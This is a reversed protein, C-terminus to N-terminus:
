SNSSPIPLISVSGNRSIAEVELVHEVRQVHEGGEPDVEYRAGLREVRAEGRAAKEQMHAARHGLELLGEKDFRYPAAQRSSPPPADLDPTRPDVDIDVSGALKPARAPGEALDGFLQADPCRSEVARENCGATIWFPEHRSGVALGFDHRDLSPLPRKMGM